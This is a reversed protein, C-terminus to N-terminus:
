VRWQRIFSPCKLLPNAPRAGIIDVCPPPLCGSYPPLDLVLAARRHDRLGVRRDRVVGECTLPLAALLAALLAAREEPREALRCHSACASSTLPPPAVVETQARAAAESSGHSWTPVTEAGSAAMSGTAACACFLSM